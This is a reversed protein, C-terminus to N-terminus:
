AQDYNYYSKKGNWSSNGSSNNRNPRASRVNAYNKEFKFEPSHVGGVALGKDKQQQVSWANNLSPNNFYITFGLIVSVVIIAMVLVNIDDPNM